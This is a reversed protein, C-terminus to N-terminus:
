LVKNICNARPRVSSKNPVARSHKSHYEVVQLTNVLPYSLLYLAKLSLESCIGANTDDHFPHLRGMM